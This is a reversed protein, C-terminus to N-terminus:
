RVPQAHPSSEPQGWGELLRIDKQISDNSVDEPAPPRHSAVQASLISATATFVTELETFSRNAWETLRRGYVDLFAHLEEGVQQQLRTEIHRRLATRGLLSLVPPRGLRVQGALASSDALPLGAARPLEQYDWRSSPFARSASRLLDELRSRTQQVQERVKGAEEAMLRTVTAAFSEGPNVAHPDGKLWRTALEGAAIEIVLEEAHRLSRAREEAERRASELMQPVSRLEREIEEITAASTLLSQDLESKPNRIESKTSHAAQRRSGGSEPLRRKLTALLAERLGGIKRRLSAAALERHADLSPRLQSEVWEDCLKADNGMISVLHVGPEVGIESGIHKRVYEAARLEAVIADIRRAAADSLRGYGGMRSSEMDALAITTFSVANRAAWLAGTVPAPTPIQLDQLSRNMRQRIHAVYDHTVKRQLPTTDDTYEQFPSPSGASAMIQEARSLLEDMYRFTTVVHRVHNDNLGSEANM